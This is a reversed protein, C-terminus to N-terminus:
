AFGDLSTILQSVQEVGDDSLTIQIGYVRSYTPNPPPPADTYIAATTSLDGTAGVAVAYSAGISLGVCPPDCYSSTVLTSASGWTAGHDTSAVVGNVGGALMLASSAAVTHGEAGDLASSVNVWTAADSSTSIAPTRTRYTVAVLNTGDFAVGGGMRPSAGGDFPGSTVETWTSTADVATMATKTGAANMGVAVWKNISGGAYCLGMVWGSSNWPTSRSTWTIGDTSTFINRTSGVTTGAVFLGQGDDRAICAPSGNGIQGAGTWTDGQDDSYCIENVGANDNGVAVLRDLNESYAFGNITSFCDAAVDFPSARPDWTAGSSVSTYITTGGMCDLSGSGGIVIRAGIQIVALAPNHGDFPTNIPSWIATM